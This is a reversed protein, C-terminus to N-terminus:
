NHVRESKKLFKKQKPLMETRALKGKEFFQWKGKQIGNKYNGQAVIQGSPNKYICYGDFEDNKFTSEETIIGKETYIKRKGNKKGDVFTTEDAIRNGSYFIKRVGFLMGSKYFEIMKLDKSEKHFYKWEGENKRNITKGESVLNKKQDFFQNLAITGNESFTRTAVIDQAKTDDFFKFVGEEIGNKFSGEYRLRKSELYFGRWVGDKNDAANVKNFNNQSFCNTAILLISLFYKMIKM